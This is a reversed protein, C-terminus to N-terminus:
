RKTRKSSRSPMHVSAAMNKRKKSASSPQLLDNDLFMQCDEIVSMIVRSPDVVDDWTGVSLGMMRQKANRIVM